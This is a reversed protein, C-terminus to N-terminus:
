WKCGKDRVTDVLIPIVALLTGGAYATRCDPRQARKVGSALRTEMTSDREESQHLSELAGRSRNRYNSGAMARLNEADPLTIASSQTPSQSPAEAPADPTPLRTHAASHTSTRALAPKNLKAVTPAQAVAVARRPASPTPLMRLLLRPFIETANSASATPSITRLLTGVVAVHVALVILVLGVKRRDLQGTAFNM